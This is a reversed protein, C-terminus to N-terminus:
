GQLVGCSCETFACGSYSAPQCTHDTQPWPVRSKYAGSPQWLIRLNLYWSLHIFRALRSCKGRVMSMLTPPLTNALVHVGQSGSEDSGAEQRRQGVRVSLDGAVNPWSQATRMPESLDSCRALSERVTQPVRATMISRSLTM